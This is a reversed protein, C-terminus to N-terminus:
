KRAATVEQIKRVLLEDASMGDHPGGQVKFGSLAERLLKAMIPEKSEEPEEDEPEAVNGPLKKWRSLNGSAIQTAYLLSNAMRTDIKGKLIGRMIDSVLLQVADQDELVPFEYDDDTPIQKNRRYRLHFYCYKQDRLALAGCADGDGFIHECNKAKAMIKETNKCEIFFARGSGLTTYKEAFRLNKGVGTHKSHRQQL